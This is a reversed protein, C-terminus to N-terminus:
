ALYLSMSLSFPVGVIAVNYPMQMGAYPWYLWTASLRARELERLELQDDVSADNGEPM